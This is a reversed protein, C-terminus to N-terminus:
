YETFILDQRYKQHSKEYRIKWGFFIVFLCILLTQSHNEGNFSFGNILNYEEKFSLKWWCYICLTKKM